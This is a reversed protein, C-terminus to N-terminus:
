EVEVSEEERNKLGVVVFKEVQRLWELERGEEMVNEERDGEVVEM